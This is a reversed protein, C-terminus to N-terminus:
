REGGKMAQYEACLADWKDDITRETWTSREPRFKQDACDVLREILADRETLKADMDALQEEIANLADVVNDANTEIGEHYFMPVGDDDFYRWKTNM